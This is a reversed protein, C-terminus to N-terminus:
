KGEKRQEKPEVIMKAGYWEGQQLQAIHERLEQLMHKADSLPLVVRAYDNGQEAKIIIGNCNHSVGWTTDNGIYHTIM